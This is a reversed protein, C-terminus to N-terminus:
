TSRANHLPQMGPLFLVDHRRWWITADGSFVVTGRWLCRVHDGSCAHLLARMMPEEGRRATMMYTARFVDREGNVLVDYIRWKEYWVCASDAM